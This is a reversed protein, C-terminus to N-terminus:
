LTYKLTCRAKQGDIVAELAIKELRYEREPRPRPPEPPPMVASSGGQAQLGSAAVNLAVIALGCLIIRRFNM